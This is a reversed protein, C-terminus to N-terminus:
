IKFKFSFIIANNSIDLNDIFEKIEDEPFHEMEAILKLVSPSYQSYFIDDKQSRIYQTIYKIAKNGKINNINYLISHMKDKSYIVRERNDHLGFEAILFSPSNFLTGNYFLYNREM